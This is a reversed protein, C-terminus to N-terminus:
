ATDSSKDIFGILLKYTNDVDDITPEVKITNARDETAAIMEDYMQELKAIGGLRKVVSGPRFGDPYGLSQGRKVYRSIAEDKPISLLFEFYQAGSENAIAELEDLQETSRYIQPIVVDYGSKLHTRAMEVALKKAMDGSQESNERWQGILTWVDDIDLRLSLGHDDAYKKALTSKGSGLPGNIIILKPKMVTIIVIFLNPIKKFYTTPSSPSSGELRAAVSKLDAAYVLEAV